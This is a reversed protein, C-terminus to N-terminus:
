AALPKGVYRPRIRESFYKGKSDAQVFEAWEHAPYGNYIYDKSVNPGRKVSVLLMRASADYSAGAIVSSEPTEFADPMTPMEVPTEHHKGNGRSDAKARRLTGRQTAMTLRGDLQDALQRNHLIREDINVRKRQTAAM